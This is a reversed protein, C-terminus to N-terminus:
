VRRFRLFYSRRGERIAKRQYRTVPWDAGQERWDTPSTEAQWRLTCVYNILRSRRL